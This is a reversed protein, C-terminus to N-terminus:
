GEPWQRADDDAHRSLLRVTHGAELLRDVAAKGVLGTGGTVLVKMTHVGQRVNPPAPTCSPHWPFPLARARSVDPLPLTDGEQTHTHLPVTRCPIAWGPPTYVFRQRASRRTSM